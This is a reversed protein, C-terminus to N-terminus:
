LLSRLPLHHSHWCLTHAKHACLLILYIAFQAPQQIRQSQSYVMRLLPLSPLHEAGCAWRNSYSLNSKVSVSLLHLNKHSTSRFQTTLVVEHATKSFHGPSCRFFSEELWICTIEVGLHFSTFGRVVPISRILKIGKLKLNKLQCKEADSIFKM